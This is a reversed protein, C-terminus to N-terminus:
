SRRAKPLSLWSSLLKPTTKYIRCWKRTLRTRELKDRKKKREEMEFEIRCHAERERQYRRRKVDHTLLKQSKLKAGGIVDALFSQLVKNILPESPRLYLALPQRDGAKALKILWDIHAETLNSV